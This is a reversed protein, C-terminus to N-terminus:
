VKADIYSFYKKINISAFITVFRLNAIISWEIKYRIPCYM